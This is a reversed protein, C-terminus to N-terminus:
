TLGRLIQEVILSFRNKYITKSKQCKNDNDYNSINKYCARYWFSVSSIIYTMLKLHHENWRLYLRKKAYVVKKLSHKPVFFHNKIHFYFCLYKNNNSSKRQMIWKEKKKLNWHSGRLKHSWELQSNKAKHTILYLSNWILPFLDNSM